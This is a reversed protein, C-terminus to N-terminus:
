GLGAMEIFSDVGEKFAELHEAGSKRDLDIGADGIEAYTAEARMTAIKCQQLAEDIDGLALKECLDALAEWSQLAEETRDPEPNYDDDHPLGNNIGPILEGLAERETFTIRNLLKESLYRKIPQRGGRSAPLFRDLSFVRLNSFWGSAGADGGVAGLFPAVLDSYGNIVEFGNIKLSYNLLMWRAIVDAHYIDTQAETGRSGVLIYFGYPPNKLMTIDNLFEEFENRELLAERSLALTCFLPRSDGAEAYVSQSSRIFSKAIVADRSDFSRAIYINPAIFATVPLRLVHKMTDRLVEETVEPIELDSKRAATFYPWETLKGTRASESSAAFTAYFQPDLLIDADANAEILPDIKAEIGSPRWDKPSIIAGDLLREELGAATKDGDGHGIQAYLKM